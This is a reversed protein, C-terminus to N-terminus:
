SVNVKVKRHAKAHARKVDRWSAAEPWRTDIGHFEFLHMAVLHRKLTWRNKM